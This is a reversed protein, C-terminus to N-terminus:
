NEAKTYEEYGQELLDDINKGMRDPNYIIVKGIYGTVKMKKKDIIADYGIAFSYGTKLFFKRSTLNYQWFRNDYLNNIANNAFVETLSMLLSEVSDPEEIGEKDRMDNFVPLTLITDMWDTLNDFERTFTVPIIKKRERAM